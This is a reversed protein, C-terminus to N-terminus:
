YFRNGKEDTRGIVKAPNGVNITFEEVNKCVVAGAGIM